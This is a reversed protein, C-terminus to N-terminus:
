TKSQRILLAGVIGMIIGIVLVAILNFQTLAEVRAIDGGLRELGANSDEEVETIRSEVPQIRGEVITQIDRKLSELDAKSIQDERHNEGDTDVAAKILWIDTIGEGFSNTNGILIYGGDPTQQVIYAADTDTGGFTKNWQMDGSSDTKILWYDDSGAGFSWTNGALIYGGDSTQQVSHGREESPGGFTKDWIQNGRSNTKVLWADYSGAGYSSTLGLIIYGGDSTQEVSYASEGGPGGYTKDWEMDGSSNTKILWFDGTHQGGRGNTEGAIIFGGDSTNQISNPTDGRSGPFTKEWQMNGSSDTKILWIDRDSVAFSYTFGALIYGGDSTQLVLQTYDDNAGGFTKDWQMDGSSNTKILWADVGGAGYSTTIGTLIYGGDSTQQVSFATDEESAGYTKNWEIDGSADTKILWADYSGAGFSMTSGPIVYGGESTQQVSRTYDISTGGFTKNWEVLVSGEDAVTIPLTSSTFLLIALGITFHYRIMKEM